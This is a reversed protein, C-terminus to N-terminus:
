ESLSQIIGNREFFTVKFPKTTNIIFIPCKKSEAYNVIEATGGKGQAPSQDWLAILVDGHDVIYRGTDEYAQEKIEELLKPSFNKSIPQENIIYLKEAKSILSEFEQRSNESSFDKVYEEKIVPLVVKLQSGSYKLVEKAVLRDAGEALPSLIKLLVPTKSTSPIYSLIKDIVERIKERLIETEHLTRHGTVGITLRFSIPEPKKM